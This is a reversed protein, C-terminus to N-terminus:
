KIIRVFDELSRRVKKSKSLFDNEEDREGLALMVVSKLNQSPLELLEDLKQSDFGEMPTSDIKEVACASLAVGLAIYAQNKSWILKEEDNLKGLFKLINSKFVELSEETVKRIDQINQIYQNAKEEYQNIWACFVILESCDIIQSQNYAIPLLKNKLEQNKIVIIDFPQMGLSTPALSISEIIKQLKEETIKKTNMKKVAYRWNLAQIFDM